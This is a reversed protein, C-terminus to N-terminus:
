PLRSYGLIPQRDRRPWFILKLGLQIDRNSGSGLVPTGSAQDPTSSARALSGHSPDNAALHGSGEDGFLPHNLVNFAQAGFQATLREKFKITKSISLDWNRFPTDRFINKGVTGFTGYAPPLLMSGNLVDCGNNALSAVALASISAAKTLCASNSEGGFFPIGTPTSTFDKPNGYFNWAEGWTNPNNM